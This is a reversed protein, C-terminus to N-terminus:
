QIKQYKKLDGIDSWKIKKTVLGSGNMLEVLGNSVQHEKKIM